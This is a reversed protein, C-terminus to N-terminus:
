LHEAGAENGFFVVVNEVLTNRSRAYAESDDDLVTELVQSYASNNALVQEEFGEYGSLGSERVGVLARSLLLFKGTINSCPTEGEIIAM